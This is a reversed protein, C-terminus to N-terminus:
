SQSVTMAILDAVNAMQPFRVLTELLKDSNCHPAGFAVLERFKHELARSSMPPQVGSIKRTIVRGSQLHIVVRAEDTNLHKDAILRIKERCAQVVPNNAADDTFSRVGAEGWLLAIA